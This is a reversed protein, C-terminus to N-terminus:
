AAGCGNSLSKTAGPARATWASRSKRMSCRAPSTSAQSSGQDKNFIEPRGHNALAVELAEVCFAAEMTISVRHSLVRRTFVDVIAALHVVGRRLSIYSIDRAWVQNPREITAGRLLCSYVKHGPASGSTNPRRYIAEIGM